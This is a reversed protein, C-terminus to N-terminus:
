TKEKFINWRIRRCDENVKVFTLSFMKIHFNPSIQSIGHSFAAASSEFMYLIKSWSIEKLNAFEKSFINNQHYVCMINLRLPTCLAPKQRLIADGKAGLTNCIEKDGMYFYSFQHPVSSNVQPASYTKARKPLGQKSAEKSLNTKEKEKLLLNLSFCALNSLSNFTNETLWNLTAKRGELHYWLLM